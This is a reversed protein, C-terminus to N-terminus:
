SLPSNSFHIVEILHLPIKKLVFHENSGKTVIHYCIGSAGRGLEEVISYKGELEEFPAAEM